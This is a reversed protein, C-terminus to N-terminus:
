SIKKNSMNGKGSWKFDFIRIDSKPKLEVLLNDEKTESENVDERETEACVSFILHCYCSL